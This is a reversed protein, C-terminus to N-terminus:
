NLLKSFIKASMILDFVKKLWRNALLFTLIISGFLVAVALYHSEERIADFFGANILANRIWIHLIYIQMTREGLPSIPLKCRPILLLFAGSVAIAFLYYLARIFLGYPAMDDLSKVYPSGGYVIDAFPELEKWFIAIGMFVAILLLVASVRLKKDLFARLQKSSLSFGLTFFPLFVLVKSMSLVGNINQTYGALLALAFTGGIRYSIKIRELFPVLLYWIGLAFLYWPAAYDKFLDLEAERGFAYDILTDGVKFFLYMWYIVMIKDVRLKGDHNMRKALYGSVFVFCPMHFIYIFYTLYKIYEVYFLEMSFHGIVVLLMLGFKLNDLYYDRERKKTDGQQILPYYFQNLVNRM